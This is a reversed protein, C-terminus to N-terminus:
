TKELGNKWAAPTMNCHKKFVTSFYPINEFGVMLAIETVSYGTTSMLRKAEEVRCINIYERLAMGAKEHFVKSLYNPTIFISAAIDERSINERFHQEIYKKIRAVVSDEERLFDIQEFTIDYLYGIYRVMNVSSYEANENLERFTQNQFLQYAQIHNEFLFGYFLQMVDHHIAQMHIADLKGQRDLQQLLKMMMAVLDTKRRERLYRLADEQVFVSGDVTQQVGDEELLMVKSSSTRERLFLKDMRKKIDGFEEPLVAPSVACSLNIGLYQKSVSILRECREQMDKIDGANERVPMILIYYPSLTNEVVSAASVNGYVTEKSLNQFIFYFEAESIKKREQNNVNVGAYLLYYRETVDFPINRKAAAEALRETNGEMTKNLLRFIFNHVLYDQNKESQKRRAELEELLQLNEQKKRCKVVTSLLAGSLEDLRFPKLLYANVGYSLAQRAYSFSDHCTLFIIEPKKGTEELKELMQIGNLQPMEIDSIVIDPSHEEIVELAQVGQYASYVQDIGYDAWPISDEIIQVTNPDDDVVLVTLGM